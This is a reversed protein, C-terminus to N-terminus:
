KLKIPQMKCREIFERLLSYQKVYDAPQWGPLSKHQMTSRDRIDDAESKPRYLKPM